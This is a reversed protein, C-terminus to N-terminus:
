LLLNPSVFSSQVSSSASFNDSAFLIITKLIFIFFVTSFILLILVCPHLLVCLICSFSFPLFFYFSFPCKIGKRTKERELHRNGAEPVCQAMRTANLAPAWARCGEWKQFSPCWACGLMCLRGYTFSLKRQFSSINQNAWLYPYPVLVSCLM